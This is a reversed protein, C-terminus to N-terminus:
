KKLAKGTGTDLTYSSAAIRAREIDNAQAVLWDQVIRTTAESRALRERPTEDDAGLIEGYGFYQYRHATMSDLAIVQGLQVGDPYGAISGEIGIAMRFPVTDQQAM